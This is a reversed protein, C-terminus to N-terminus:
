IGYGAFGLGSRDGATRSHRHDFRTKGSRTRRCAKTKAATAADPAKKASCKGEGCKGAKMKDSAEAVVTANPLTKMAFPNESANVSPSLAVSAAIAGLTLSLTKNNM